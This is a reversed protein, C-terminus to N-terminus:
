GLHEIVEATLLLCGVLVNLRREGERGLVAERIPFGYEREQPPRRQRLLALSFLPNGQQPLAQRGVPGRPYSHELRIPQGQQSLLIPFCSLVCCPQADESFGQLRYVARPLAPPLRFQM